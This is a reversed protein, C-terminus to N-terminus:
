YAANTSPTYAKRKKSKAKANRAAEVHEKSTKNALKYGAEGVVKVFSDANM